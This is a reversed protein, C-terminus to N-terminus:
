QERVAALAVAARSALQTAERLSREAGEGVQDATAALRILSQQAHELLRVFPELGASGPALEPVEVPSGSQPLPLLDRGAMCQRAASMAQLEESGEEFTIVDAVKAAVTFVDWVASLITLTDESDLQADLESLAATTM